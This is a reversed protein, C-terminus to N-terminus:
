SIRRQLIMLSFDDQRPQDQRWAKNAAMIEDYYTQSGTCLSAALSEGFREFGLEEGANNRSEVLGDTYLVLTDGPELNIESQSFRSNKFSGLAAGVVQIEESLRTAARIVFPNCGGANAYVVRHALTDVMIYQFTMIKRQKRTKTRYILNHLRTLLESPQDLLEVSNMMASKAMAMIM